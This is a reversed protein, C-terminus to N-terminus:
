WSRKSGRQAIKHLKQYHMDIQEARIRKRAEARAKAIAASNGKRSIAGGISGAQSIKDTQGTRKLYAFGGTNSAAGGLKGIKHYFDNGYLNMNTMAAKRGGRTNGAM